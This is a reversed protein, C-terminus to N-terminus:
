PAFWKRKIIDEYDKECMEDAKKLDAWMGVQGMFGIGFRIDDESFSSKLLKLSRFYNAATAKDVFAPINYGMHDYLKYRYPNFLALAVDCDEILNGTNKFSETTPEPDQQKNFIQSQVSQNFQSIVVPSMHYKDRCISMYESLKDTTSKRDKSGGITELKCKGVHDIVPIVILNPDHLHYVTEYKSVEEEGRAASYELLHNRIGTPNEQGDIITIIKSDQMTEFLEEVANFYYMDQDNMKEQKWGMMKSPTILHGYLRWIMYCCWKCIKHIKKREMSRYVWELKIDTKDKNQLYWMYPELVYISDVLATKGTGSFGGVLTYVSQRISIYNGLKRLPIPVGEEKGLIGKEVVKKLQQYDSLM